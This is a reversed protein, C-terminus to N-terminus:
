CLWISTAVDRKLHFVATAWLLVRLLAICYRGNSFTQALYPRELMARDSILTMFSSESSIDASIM